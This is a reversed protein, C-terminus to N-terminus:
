PTGAGSHSKIMALDSANITGNVVVDSRFTANTIAQGSRSKTQSVDSANVVGTGNSDGVFLSMHVTVDNTSTGNNVGSLTMAITQADAVDTLDVTVTKGDPSLNPPGVMRGLKGSAPTVSAGSLTVATPFTFVIKYDSNTGGNRCEIGANGTLPLNIDFFGANGHTKRSVVNVAQVASTVAVCASFESTDGTSLRTATATAKTGAAVAAPLTLSFTAHGMGDTTVPTSGIFAAGEGFGSPDCSPSAFFEVMFQASPSSDLTGQVMVASGTTAASLLVPFNQLGNGGIDGDGPDNPTVGGGSGSSLDIGM